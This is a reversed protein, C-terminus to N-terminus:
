EGKGINKKWSSLSVAIVKEVRDYARDKICNLIEQHYEDAFAFNQEVMINHEISDVFLQYVGRVIRTLFVNNGISTLKLHFEYDLKVAAPIDKLRICQRFQNINLQLSEMDAETAKQIALRLIAQDLIERLEILDSSSSMDFIMGYILTDLASPNMQSCVYTGDGRKIEVIGMSVLTKMAERLSNRSVKLEEMLEFESPIKTGIPYKGSSVAAIISEVILDVVSKSNLPSLSKTKASNDPKM